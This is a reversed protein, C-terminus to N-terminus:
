IFGGDYDTMEKKLKQIQWVYDAMIESVCCITFFFSLQKLKKVNSM